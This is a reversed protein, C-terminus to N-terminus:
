WGIWEPKRPIHATYIKKMGMAGSALLEGIEGNATDGTVSAQYLPVIMQSRHDTASWTVPGCVGELGAPVWDTRSELAKKINPGSIGGNKDAWEMAEKMYFIPCVGRTYHVPRYVKGTPDSIKSVARLLKMGPVDDNWAATSMVWVVGDAAKGAAKMTNEDMGWINSMFQTNVGVTECSKLLAINSGGTNALFAYDAGSEKLSLCQAKFDGGRLSYQIPPIIAFGLEKAYEEGAAKPANPYPHNDGMHIYKPTGSKGKAKWDAAAWQVLSRAGDSYSPAVFFNYPAPKKTKPGSGTPDTLHGSFSLSMYPIKDKSVFGILAETDATGWGQILTVGQQKWKKYAAIAQPAKYSYDLNEVRIKKGNIGGHANIYALGDIKGQGAFKGVGSTPGTMDYLDGVFIEAALAPGAVFAAVATGLLTARLKTM